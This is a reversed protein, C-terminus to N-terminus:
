PFRGRIVKAVEHLQAMASHYDPQIFITRVIAAV